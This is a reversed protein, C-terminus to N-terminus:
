KKNGFIFKTKDALCMSPQSSDEVACGYNSYSHSKGGRCSNGSKKQNKKQNKKKKVCIFHLLVIAAPFDQTHASVSDM